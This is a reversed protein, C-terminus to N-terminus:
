GAWEPAEGPVDAGESVFFESFLSSDGVLLKAGFRAVTLKLSSVIRDRESPSSAEFIYTDDQITTIQFCTNAKALGPSKDLALIRCIDLLEIAQPTAQQQAKIKKISSHRHHHVRKWLLKPQLMPYIRQGRELWWHIAHTKQSQKAFIKKKNSSSTSSAAANHLKLTITENFLEQVLTQYKEEHEYDQFTGTPEASDPLTSKRYRFSPATDNNRVKLEMESRNINKNDSSSSSHNTNEKDSSKTQNSTSPSPTNSSSGASTSSRQQTRSSRRHRCFDEPDSEYGEAYGDYCNGDEDESYTVMHSSFSRSYIPSAVVPPLACGQFFHALSGPRHVDNSVRAIAPAHDQISFSRSPNLQKPYPRLQQSPTMSTVSSSSSFPHLERRMVDMKSKRTAMTWARSRLQKRVPEMGDKSGNQSEDVITGSLYSWMQWGGDGGTCSADQLFCGIWQEVQDLSPSDATTSATTRPTRQVIQSSNSDDKKEESHKYASSSPSPTAVASVPDCCLGPLNTKPTDPTPPATSTTDASVDADLLSQTSSKFLDLEFDTTATDEDLTTSYKATSMAQEEDEEEDPLGYIVEAGQESMQVVMVSTPSQMDDQLVNRGYKEGSTRTIVQSSSKKASLSNFTNSSSCGDSGNEPFSFLRRQTPLDGNDRGRSSASATAM